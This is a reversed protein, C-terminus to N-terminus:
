DCSLSSVNDYWFSQLTLHFWVMQRKVWLLESINNRWLKRLLEYDLSSERNWESALVILVDQILYSTYFLAHRYSGQWGSSIHMYVDTGFCSFCFQKYFLLSFCMLWMLIMCENVSASIVCLFLALVWPSQVTGERSRQHMTLPRSLWHTLGEWLWLSVPRWQSADLAIALSSIERPVLWYRMPWWVMWDRM